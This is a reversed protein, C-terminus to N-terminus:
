LGIKSRFEKKFFLASLMSFLPVLIVYKDPPLVYALSLGPGKSFLVVFITVLLFPSLFGVVSLGIIGNSYIKSAIYGTPISSALYFLGSFDMPIKSLNPILSFIFTGVTGLLGLIVWYAIGGITLSLIARLFKSETEM